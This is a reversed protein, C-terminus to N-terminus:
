EERDSEGGRPGGTEQSGPRSGGAGSGEPATEGTDTRAPGLRALDLLAGACCAGCLVHSPARPSGREVVTGCWACIRRAPLTANAEDNCTM